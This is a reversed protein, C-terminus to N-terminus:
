CPSARYLKYPHFQCWWCEYKVFSGWTQHSRACLTKTSLVAAWLNMRMPLLLSGATTRMLTDCQLWISYTSLLHAAKLKVQTSMKFTCDTFYTRLKSFHGNDVSHSSAATNVNHRRHITNCRSLSPYINTSRQKMESWFSIHSTFLLIEPPASWQCETAAAPSTTM